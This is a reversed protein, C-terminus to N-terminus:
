YSQSKIERLKEALQRVAAKDTELTLHVEAHELDLASIRMAQEHFIDSANATLAILSQQLRRHIEVMGAADRAIPMYIDDLLDALQMRPVYLRPYLVHDESLDREQWPLLIRVSRSLIDIATGPDNVAPSLARSAIEALVSLGFRPDQEFSRTDNITFAAQIRAADIENSACIWALPKAPHTFHGTISLVGVACDNEEALASLKGTDVHQVYGTKLPYILVANAPPQSNELPRGGLSPHDVWERLANVTANEVRQTTEGLRGLKSLHDIWRLMTIVILAVVSLTAIFLILRGTEGYLETQLTIIAVLSFIFSGLFTALVNQTTTDQKILQNARPTAGSSASGYATVMVGLSFTTVALMSSALIDLIKIVSERAVTVPMEIDVMREIPIAILAVLVALLGFLTARLWLTRLLQTLLWQWKSFM